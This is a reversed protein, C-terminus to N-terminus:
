VIIDGENTVEGGNAVTNAIFEKNWKSFYTDLIIMMDTVRFEQKIIGKCKERLIICWVLLAEEVSNVQYYMTSYIVFHEGMIELIYPNRGLNGSNQADYFERERIFVMKTFDIELAGLINVFTNLKLCHLQWPRVLKDRMVNGKKDYTHEQLMWTIQKYCRTVHLSWKISKSKVGHKERISAEMEGEGVCYYVSIKRCEDLNDPLQKQYMEEEMWKLFSDGYLAIKNKPLDTKKMNALMEFLYMSRYFGSFINAINDIYVNSPIILDMVRRTWKKDVGDMIKEDNSLTIIQAIMDELIGVFVFAAYNKGRRIFQWKNALAQIQYYVAMQSWGETTDRDLYRVKYEDAWDFSLKWQANDARFKSAVCMLRYQNLACICIFIMSSLSLKGGACTQNYIKYLSSNKGCMKKQLSEILATVANVESLTHIFEGDRIRMIVIEYVQTVYFFFVNVDEPIDQRLVEGWQRGINKKGYEPIKDRDYINVVTRKRGNNM